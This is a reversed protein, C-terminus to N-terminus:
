GPAAPPPSVRGRDADAVGSEPLQGAQGVGRLVAAGGGGVADGEEGAGHRRHGSLLGGAPRGAGGAPAQAARVLQAEVPVSDWPSTSVFRHLQEADEPVLERAMTTACRRCTATMQGRLYIAFWRRRAKHGLGGLFPGLGRQFETEWDPLARAPTM